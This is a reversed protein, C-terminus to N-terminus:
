AVILFNAELVRLGQLAEAQSSLLHLLLADHRLSHLLTLLRRTLLPTDALRVFSASVRNNM